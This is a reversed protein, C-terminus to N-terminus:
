FWIQLVAPSLRDEWALTTVASKAMNKYEETIWDARPWLMLQRGPWLRLHLGVHLAIRAKVTNLNPAEEEEATPSLALAMDLHATDQGESERLMYARTFYYTTLPPIDPVGHKIREIWEAQKRTLQSIRGESFQVVAGLVSLLFAAEESDDTLSWRGSPDPLILEKVYQRITRETPVDGFKGLLKKHIQASNTFGDEVLQRLEKEVDIKLGRGKRKRMVGREHM